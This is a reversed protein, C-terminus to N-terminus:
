IDNHKKPCGEMPVPPDNHRQATTILIAESDFAPESRRTSFSLLGHQPLDRRFEAQVTVRPHVQHNRPNTYRVTGQRSLLRLFATPTPRELTKLRTPCVSSHVKRRSRCSGDPRCWLWLAAAASVGHSGTSLPHALIM